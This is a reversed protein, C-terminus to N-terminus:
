TPCILYRHCFRLGKDSIIVHFKSDKKAGFDKGEFISAKVGSAFAFLKEGHGSKRFVWPHTHFTDVQKKDEFDLAKTFQGKRGEEDVTYFEISYSVRNYFIATFSITENFLRPFIGLINYFPTNM